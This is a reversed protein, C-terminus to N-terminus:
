GSVRAGQSQGPERVDEREIRHRESFERSEEVYEYLKSKILKIKEGYDIKSGFDVISGNELEFRDVYSSFNAKLEWEPSLKDVDALRIDRYPELQAQIDFRAKMTPSTRSIIDEVIKRLSNIVYSPLGADKAELYDKTATIQDYLFYDEGYDVHASLFRDGYRLMAVTQVLFKHVFQINEAWYKLVAHRTEYQSRIQSENFAKEDSVENDVGTLHKIIKVELKTVKEQNYDLLTRDAQVFGAPVSMKASEGAPVELDIQHGPGMYPTEKKYPQNNADVLSDGGATWPDECADNYKWMIPFSAYLDAHDKFIDAIVYKDLDATIETIANYRRIPLDPDVVDRWIFTAPCYGLSHASEIPNVLDGNRDIEFSRYYETDIVVLRRNEKEPSGTEFMVYLIKGSNDVDVDKCRGTEVFYIYPSALPDEDNGEEVQPVDVIAITNVAQKIKTFLNQEITSTFNIRDLFEEFDDELNEDTFQYEVSRDKGSFIKNWEDSGKSILNNSPLPFSMISKFKNFKETNNLMNQAKRLFVNYYTNTDSTDMSLQAHFMQRDNDKAAREIALKNKPAKWLEQIKAQTLTAM